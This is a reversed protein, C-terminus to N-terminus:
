MTTAPVEEADTAPTLFALAQDVSPFLAREAWLEAIAWRGDVNLREVAGRHVSFFPGHGDSLAKEVQAGVAEPSAADGPWVQATYPQSDDYIEYLVGAAALAGAYLFFETLGCAEMAQALPRRERRCVQMALAQAADTLFTFPPSTRPGYAVLPAPDIGLWACTRELSPRLPHTAKGYGNIRPRGDGTELFDRGLPGVLHTKADLVVYRDCGILKAASLKLAQQAVWGRVGDTQALASGPVISVKEQLAGYRELLLGEWGDPKAGPSFNDVVLIEGVLRPDCYLAMSRAQLDMLGVDGEFVVTVFGYRRQTALKTM